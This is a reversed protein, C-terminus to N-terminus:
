GKWPRESLIKMDKEILPKWWSENKVYWEVTEVLGKEFKITHEFGLGKIKDGKISYRFDHGPRDEVHKILSEDKKLTKLIEKVVYVNERESEGPINYIEGKKGRELVIDIAKATDM